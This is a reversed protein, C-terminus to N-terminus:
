PGKWNKLRESYDKYRRELELMDKWCADNAEDTGLDDTSQLAAIGAHLEALTAELEARTQPERLEKARAGDRLRRRDVSSPDRRSQSM